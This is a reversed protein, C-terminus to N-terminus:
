LEVGKLKYYEELNDEIISDTLAITYILKEANGDTSILDNDYMQQLLDLCSDKFETDAKIRKKLTKMRKRKENENM